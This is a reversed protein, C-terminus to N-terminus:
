STRRSGPQPALPCDAYAAQVAADAGDIKFEATTRGGNLSRIRVYLQNSGSMDAIFQALAAKDEIVLVKYGLLVRSEVNDRGPKDDVRYGLITNKDSGIKVEFALKAIPQNEFCTLQLDAALPSDVQSNSVRLTRVAAGAVPAATVRDVQRDIQWSGAKAYVSFPATRDTVCGGVLAGSLVVAALAVSRVALGWAQDCQM